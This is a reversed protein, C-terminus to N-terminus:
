VLVEEPAARGLFQEVNLTVSAARHDCLTSHLRATPPAIISAELLKDSQAFVQEPLGNLVVRGGNLIILRSAYQAVARMDHTIMLYTMQLQDRLQQLFGLFAKAHGEDQGTTPEDLIMLQPNAALLAGIALRKRQGHSLHFPNADMRTELGILQAIEQVSTVQLVTDDRRNYKKGFMLEDKVRSAFLMNDAAQFLYGIHAAQRSIKGAQIVADRYKVSGSTAAQFGMALSALSTKGSGNPGAVAVWEGDHVALNAGHLVQNDGFSLGIEDWRLLSGSVPQSAFHADGAKVTATQNLLQKHYISGRIADCAEDVSLATQRGFVDPLRNSLRAMEPVTVGLSRWPSEDQFIHRPSDDLIIKGEDMLLVRDVWPIVEDIKHEILVITMHRDRNLRRLVELVEQTGAPDLDSTPEDLVLVDPEMSLTASIAIRQKQGGSLAYIPSQLFCEMQTYSLSEMVRKRIVDRPLGLNEPGFATEAEVDLHILQNDPNQFVMGIHQSTEHIDMASICKDGFYVKGRMPGSVRSPILGALALALTSKGCGSPGAVLVFEGRPITLDIKDLNPKTSGPYAFSLHDVHIDSM